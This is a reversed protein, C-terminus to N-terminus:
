LFILHLLTYHRNHTRVTTIGFMRAIWLRMSCSSPDPHLDGKIKSMSLCIRRCAESKTSKCAHAWRDFYMSENKDFEGIMDMIVVRSQHAMHTDVRRLSSLVIHLNKTSMLSLARFSERHEEKFKTRITNIKSRMIDLSPTEDLCGRVITEDGDEKNGSHVGFVVNSVINSYSNPRDCFPRFLPVEVSHPTSSLDYMVDFIMTYSVDIVQEGFPVLKIWVCHDEMMYPYVSETFEQVSLPDPHGDETVYFYNSADIGHETMMDVISTIYRLCIEYPSVIPNCLGSDWELLTDVVRTDPDVHLMKEDAKRDESESMHDPIDVVRCTDFAAKVNYSQSPLSVCGLYIKSRMSSPILQAVIVVNNNSAPRLSMTICWVLQNNTKFAFANVDSSISYKNKVPLTGTSKDDELSVVIPPIEFCM